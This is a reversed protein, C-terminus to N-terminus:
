SNMDDSFMSIKYVYFLCSRVSKSIRFRNPRISPSRSACFLPELSAVALAVVVLVTGFLTSSEIVVRASAAVEATVIVFVGPPTDECVVM